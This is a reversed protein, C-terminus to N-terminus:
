GNGAGGRLYEDVLEAYEEAARHAYTGQMERLPKREYTSRDVATTRHIMTNFIPVASQQMAEATERAVTTGDYQTVLAGLVRLRPNIDHMGAIQRLLEGVGAVSFGDLRMPIIVDDAGALAVTSAATFSPPCDVLMIDAADDEALTLALDRLAMLRIKHENLARVDALILDMSGPIIQVNEKADPLWDGYYPEHTGCLLDYLTTYGEEADSLFFHTLNCQPDADVVVVRKGRAALECAMNITTITKGTGGKHNFIVTTRM